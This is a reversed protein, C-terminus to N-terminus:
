LTDEYEADDLVVIDDRINGNAHIASQRGKADRASRRVYIVGQSERNADSGESDGEGDGSDNTPTLMFNAVLLGVSCVVIFIAIDAIM